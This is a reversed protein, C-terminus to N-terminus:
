GSLHIKDLLLRRKEEAAAKLPTLDERGEESLIKIIQNLGFLYRDQDCCGNKWADALNTLSSFLTEELDKNDISGGRIRASKLTNELIGIKIIGAAMRAAERVDKKFDSDGAVYESFSLAALYDKRATELDSLTVAPLREKTMARYRLIEARWIFPSGDITRFQDEFGLYPFFREEATKLIGLATAIKEEREEDSFSLYTVQSNLSSVEILVLRLGALARKPTLDSGMSEIQGRRFSAIEIACRYLGPDALGREGSAISRLNEALNIYERDIKLETQFIIEEREKNLVNFFYSLLFFGDLM